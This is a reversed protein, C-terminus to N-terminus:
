YGAINFLYSVGTVFQFNNQMVTKAGIPTAGGGSTTAQYKAQYINNRVETTWALNKNIFIRIGLNALSGPAVQSSGKRQAGQGAAPKNFTSDMTLVSLGLGGYIDFHIIRSRFWAFKGYIPNWLVGIGGFFKPQLFEKTSKFGSTVLFSELQEKENTDTNMSYNGFAQVGWYENFYYASRLGVTYSNYFATASTMGLDAGVELRGTKNYKRDQIVLVKNDDREFLQKDWVDKASFDVAKEAAKPAEVQAAPVAKEATKTPATAESEVKKVDAKKAEAKTEQASSMSFVTFLATTILYNKHFRM